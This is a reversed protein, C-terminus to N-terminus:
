NLSKKKARDSHKLRPVLKFNLSAPRLEGRSSAFGQLDNWPGPRVKRGQCILYFGLKYELFSFPEFCCATTVKQSWSLFDLACSCFANLYKDM